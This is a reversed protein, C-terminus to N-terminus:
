PFAGFIICCSRHSFSKGLFVYLEDDDAIKGRILVVGHITSSLQESANTGSLATPCTVGSKM